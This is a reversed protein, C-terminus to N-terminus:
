KTWIYAIDVIHDRSLSNFADDRLKKAYVGDQAMHDRSLSNFPNQLTTAFVPMVFMLHDRSLSNFTVLFRGGIQDGIMQHDRSGSLPLQFDAGDEEGEREGQTAHDRSLSNFPLYEEHERRRKKTIGLSPTSLKQIMLTKITM